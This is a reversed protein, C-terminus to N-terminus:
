QQCCFTYPHAPQVSGLPAGGGPQCSGPVYTPPTAAKSGLPSGSPVTLCGSEVSGVTVSGLPASCASDTYVTVLSSCTSEQPPGCTCPSCTRGDTADLYFVDRRPYGTPCPVEAPDDDGERSVCLAFTTNKSPDVPPIFTPVCVDAHDCNGAASGECTYAITGWTVDKTTPLTVASCPAENLTLPAVSVSQALPSVVADHASCSGDWGSPPDFAIASGSAGCAATSAAVSAPLGCSGTPLQCLCGACKLSQVPNKHVIFGKTPYSDQPCNMSAQSLPGNTAVLVFPYRSWGDSNTGLPVCMGACAGAPPACTLSRQCDGAWDECAAGLAVVVALSM